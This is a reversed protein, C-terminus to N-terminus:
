REGTGSRFREADDQPEFGLEVRANALDWFRWTNASVGYYVGFTLEPPARLAGDVLRVLDAHSLLTAFHRPRTPRDDRMVTGIRLCICSLGHREAYLRSVAEAFVKGVGYPGDPRVPWDPGILPLAAPDLGEYSGAAIQAYPSELEYLGTVHNSSAYVYRRVGHQRAAELVDIRMRSDALVDDWGVDSRAAAALDIVADVGELARALTRRRRVDGRRVGIPRVRRSDLGRLSYGDALGKWLVSGVLGGAGTILVRELAGTKCGRGSARAPRRRSRPRM